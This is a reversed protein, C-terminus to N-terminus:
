LNNDYQKGHDVIIIKNKKKNFVAEFRQLPSLMFRDKYGFSIKGSDKVCSGDILWRRTNKYQYWLVFGSKTIEIELNKLHKKKITKM